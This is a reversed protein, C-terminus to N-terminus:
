PTPIHRFPFLTDLIDVTIKAAIICILWVILSILLCKVFRKERLYNILMSLLFAAAGVFTDVHMIELVVLFLLVIVFANFASM